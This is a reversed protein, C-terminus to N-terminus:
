PIKLLSFRGAVFVPELDKPYYPKDLIIYNANWNKRLSLLYSLNWSSGDYGQHVRHYNDANELGIIPDVWMLASEPEGISSRLSTTRFNGSGTANIFLDSKQTQQRAWYRVKDWDTDFRVKYNRHTNISVIVLSFLLVFGV